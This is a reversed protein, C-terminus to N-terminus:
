AFMRDWKCVGLDLWIYAKTAEGKRSQTEERYIEEFNM